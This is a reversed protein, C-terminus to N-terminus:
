GEFGSWVNSAKNRVAKCRLRKVRSGFGSVRFGLGKV